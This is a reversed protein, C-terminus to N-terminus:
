GCDYIFTSNSCCRVEKWNELILSWVQMIGSIAEVDPNIGKESWGDIKKIPVSCDLVFCLKLSDPGGWFRETTMFEGVIRKDSIRLLAGKDMSCNGLVSGIDVLLKANKDSTYNLRYFTVRDTGYIGGM